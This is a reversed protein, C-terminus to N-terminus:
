GRKTRRLSCLDGGGVPLLSYPSCANGVERQAWADILGFLTKKKCAAGM